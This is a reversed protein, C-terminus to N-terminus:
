FYSFWFFFFFIFFVNVRYIYLKSPKPLNKTIKTLFHKKYGQEFNKPLFFFFFLFIFKPCNKLFSTKLWFDSLYIGQSIEKRLIYVKIYKIKNTKLNRCVCFALTTGGDKFSSVLVHLMAFVWGILAYNCFFFFFFTMVFLGM